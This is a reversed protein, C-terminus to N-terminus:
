KLKKERCVLENLDIEPEIRNDLAKTLISCKRKYTSKKCSNCNRDLFENYILDNRFIGKKRSKYIFVEVRPNNKDILVDSVVPMITDDDIVIGADTIADQMVKIANDCDKRKRDFYFVMDMVVYENKDPTNWNQHKLERRIIKQAYMKYEKATRTEYPQAIARGGIYVVRYGLYQNVSPAIPLTFKIM